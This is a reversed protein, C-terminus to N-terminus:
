RRGPATSSVWTRSAPPGSSTPPTLRRFGAVVSAMTNNVWVDFPGPVPEVEDAAAEVQVHDAVDTVTGVARHAAAAFEQM